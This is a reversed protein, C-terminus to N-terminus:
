HSEGTYMWSLTKRLSSAPIFGIHKRLAQNSGVLRRVENARVFAPNVRVEIRYGAIDAMMDLVENLSTGVGTCINFVGGTPKAEVLRAYVRAVDRVDAFDRAVDTNGLEILRDGRRFHEVIKPLLFQTSQGVGTYNFPRTIVIPLRETWLRAMYEMALKSVAYDNAPAPSTAEVIPEVTANGYINASSALVVIEPSAPLEALAELLNRTGVVNVRYIEDVDGHAVFAIAALHLVVNPAIAAIADRTAARDLVNVSVANPLTDDCSHSLGVTEYGLAELERVVYRGTFGTAGTVLARPRAMDSRPVANM